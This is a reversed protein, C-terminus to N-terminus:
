LGLQAEIAQQVARVREANAGQPEPGSRTITVKTIKGQWLVSIELTADDAQCQLLYPEPETCSWAATADRAAEMVQPAPVDLRQSRLDDVQGTTVVSPGCALLLWM